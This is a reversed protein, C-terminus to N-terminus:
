EITQVFKRMNPKQKDIQTQNVAIRRGVLVKTGAAL